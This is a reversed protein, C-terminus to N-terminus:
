RARAPATMGEPFGDLVIGQRGQEAIWRLLVVLNAWDDAPLPNQLAEAKWAAITADDPLSLGDGDVNSM